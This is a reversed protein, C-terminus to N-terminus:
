KRKIIRIVIVVALGIALYKVWKNQWLSKAESVVAQSTATIKDQTSEPATKSVPATTPGATTTRRVEPDLVPVKVDGIPYFRSDRQPIGYQVGSKDFYSVEGETSVAWKVAEPILKTAAAVDIYKEVRQEAEQRQRAAVHLEYQASAKEIESPEVLTYAKQMVTEAITGAINTDVTGTTNGKFDLDRFYLNWYTGLTTSVGKYIYGIEYVGSYLKSEIRVKQGVKFPLMSGTVQLMTKNYWPDTVPKGPPVLAKIFEIKM